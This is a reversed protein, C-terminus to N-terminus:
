EEVEIEMSDTEDDIEVGRSELFRRAANKLEEKRQEDIM